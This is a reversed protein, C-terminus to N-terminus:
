PLTLLKNYETYIKSFHITYFCYKKGKYMQTICQEVLISYLALAFFLFILLVSFNGWFFLGWLCSYSDSIIKEAGFVWIWDELWYTCSPGTVPAKDEGQREKATTRKPCICEKIMVTIKVDVGHECPPRRPDLSTRVLKTYIEWVWPPVSSSHRSWQANCPCSHWAVNEEKM